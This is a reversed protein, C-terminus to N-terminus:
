AIAPAADEISVAVTSLQPGPPTLGPRPTQLTSLMRLLMMREGRRYICSMWTSCPHVCPSSMVDTDVSAQRKSPAHRRELLSARTQYITPEFDINQVPLARRVIQWLAKVADAAGPRISVIPPNSDDLHAIDNIFNFPIHDVFCGGSCSTCAIDARSSSAAMTTCWGHFSSAETALLRKSPCVSGMQVPEHAGRACFALQGPVVAGALLCRGSSPATQLEPVHAPNSLHASTRPLCASSMQLAEHRDWTWITVCAFAFIRHETLGRAAQLCSLLVALICCSAPVSGCQWVAVTTYNSLLPAVQGCRGSGTSCWVCWSCVAM